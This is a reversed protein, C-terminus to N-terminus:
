YNIDVSYKLLISRMFECNVYFNFVYRSVTQPIWLLAAFIFVGSALQDCCRVCVYAKCRYIYIYVCM